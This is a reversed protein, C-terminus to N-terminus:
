AHVWQTNEVGGEGREYPAKFIDRELDGDGAFREAEGSFSPAADGLFSREAEGLFSPEADGFFSRESDGLFSFPEREREGLFSREEDALFSFPEREGRL